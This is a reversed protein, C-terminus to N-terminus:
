TILETELSAMVVYVNTELDLVEVQAEDASRNGPQVVIDGPVKCTTCGM